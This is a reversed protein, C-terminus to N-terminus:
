EAQAGNVSSPHQIVVAMEPTDERGVRRLLQDEAEKVFSDLTKPDSGGAIVMFNETDSIEKAVESLSEILEKADRIADRRGHKVTLILLDAVLKVTKLENATNLCSSREIMKQLQVKGLISFGGAESTIADFLPPLDRANMLNRSITVSLSLVATLTERNVYEDRPKALVQLLLDIMLIVHQCFCLMHMSRRKKKTPVKLMGFKMREKLNQACEDDDSNHICLHELIQAAIIGCKTIKDELMGTLDGIVDQKARLIKTTNEKGHSSLKALMEGALLDVRDDEATTHQTFILVLRKIFHERMTAITSPADDGRRLRSYIELAGEMLLCDDCRDCHVISELSTMADTNGSIECRVMEGTAGPTTVLHRMVQISAGIMERCIPRESDSCVSHYKTHHMDSRLPVMIKALLGEKEAIVRCWEEDSVLKALLRLGEVMLEQFHELANYEDGKEDGPPEVLSAISHIGQPFNLQERRLDGALHALIRAASISTIYHYGRAPDLSQVLKQLLDGAGSPSWALHEKILSHQEELKPNELLAGLISAGCVFSWCNPFESEIMTDVAYKVLNRRKAFSPDKECGIRTEHIYRRLSVFAYFHRWHHFNYAKAVNNTLRSQWFDSSFRYYSLVGQLLVMTYLVDLAPRLNNSGDGYDRHLLRWAALGTTIVLGCAYLVAVALALPGAVVAFVLQQVLYAVFAALRRLWRPWHKPKEKSTRRGGDGDEDKMNEARINKDDKSNKPVYFTYTTSVFGLIYSLVIKKLNERPFVTSVRFSHFSILAGEM